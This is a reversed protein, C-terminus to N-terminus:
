GGQDLYKVGGGFYPLTHKHRSGVECGVPLITGLASDNSEALFECHALRVPRLGGRVPIFDIALATGLGEADGRRGFDFGGIQTGAGAAEVFLLGQLALSHDVVTVLAGAVAVDHTVAETDLVGPEFNRAFTRDGILGTDRQSTRIHVSVQCFEQGTPELGKGEVVGHVDQISLSVPGPGATSGLKCFFGYVHIHCRSILPHGEGVGSVIPCDRDGAVLVKEVIGLAGVLTLNFRHVAM